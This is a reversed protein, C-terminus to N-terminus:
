DAADKKKKQKKKTTKEIKPKKQTVRTFRTEQTGVTTITLRGDQVTLAATLFMVGDGKGTEPDLVLEVLTLPQEAKRSGPATDLFTDPRDTAMLVYRKGDKEYTRTFRMQYAPRDPHKVFGKNSQQRLFDAIGQSGSEQFAKLMAQREEETTWETVGIRLIKMKGFDQDVTTAEYGEIADDYSQAAVPAVTALVIAALTGMWALTKM